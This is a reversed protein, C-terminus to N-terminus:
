LTLFIERPQPTRADRSSNKFSVEDISSSFNNLAHLDTQKDKGLAMVVSIGGGFTYFNCCKIM